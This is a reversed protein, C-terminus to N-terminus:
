YETIKTNLSEIGLIGGLKSLAGQKNQFIHEYLDGPKDLEGVKESKVAVDISGM